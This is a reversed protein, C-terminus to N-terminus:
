RARRSIPTVHESDPSSGGLRGSPRGRVSGRLRQPLGAATASSPARAHVTRGARLRRRTVPSDDRPPGPARGRRARPRGRPRPRARARHSLQGSIPRRRRGPRAWNGATCPSRRVRTLVAPRQPPDARPCADHVKTARTCTEWRNSSMRTTRQAHSASAGPQVFSGPAAATSSCCGGTSAPRSRSLSAHTSDPLSAELSRSAPTSLISEPSPRGTKGSVM